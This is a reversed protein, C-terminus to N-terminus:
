KPNVEPLIRSAHGPPVDRYRRPAERPAGSPGIRDPLDALSNTAPAEAGNEARESEALAILEMFNDFLVPEFETGRGERMITISNELPLSKRYPRNTRLADYVDAIQTMYSAINLPVRYAVKPYGGYNFKIHHEFCVIMPLESGCDLKRLINAGNSPHEAVQAFEALDLKGPKHLVERPIQIKGIDHLLAALGIERIGSEPIGIRMAQALVMTCVNLSHTVTYDDHDQLRTLRSILFDDQHLGKMVDAVIDRGEQISAGGSGKGIAALLDKVVSTAGSLVRSDPISLTLSGSPLSSDDFTTLIGYSINEWKRNKSTEKGSALFLIFEKLEGYTLGDKFSIKEIGRERLDRLLKKPFFKNTELYASDGVVFHNGIVGVHLVGEAATIRLIRAHLRTLPAHFRKHYEPYMQASQISQSMYLIVSFLYPKDIM